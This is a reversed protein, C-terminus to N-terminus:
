LSKFTGKPVTNSVAQRQVKVEIGKGVDLLVFNEGVELVRGLVGGSTVVEDGKGLTELMKKHEKTRKSQPRIFFFYFLILVFVIPLLDVLIASGPRGGQAYANPILLNM